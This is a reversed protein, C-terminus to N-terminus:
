INRGEFKVVSGRLDKQLRKAARIDLCRKVHSRGGIKIGNKHRIAVAWNHSLLGIRYVEIVYKSMVWGKCM